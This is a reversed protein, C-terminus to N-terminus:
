GNEIAEKYYYYILRFADNNNHVAGEHADSLAKGYANDWLNSDNTGFEKEIDIQLLKPHVLYVNNNINDVISM